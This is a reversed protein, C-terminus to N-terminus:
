QLYVPKMREFWLRGRKGKGISIGQKGNGANNYYNERAYLAAYKIVGSGIVTGLLASKKLFGTLFPVYGDMCRIVESDIYKQARGGKTLGHNKLIDPNLKLM